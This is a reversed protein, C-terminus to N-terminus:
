WLLHHSGCASCLRGGERKSRDFGPEHGHHPRYFVRLVCRGVGAVQIGRSWDTQTGTQTGTENQTKHSQNYPQLSNLDPYPSPSAPRRWAHGDNQEETGPSSAEQFFLGDNYPQSCLPMYNEDYQVQTATALM